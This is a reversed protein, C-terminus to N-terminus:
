PLPPTRNWSALAAAILSLGGGIAFGLSALGALVNPAVAPANAAGVTKWPDQTLALLLAVALLVVAAGLFFVPRVNNMTLVGGGFTLPEVNLTRQPTSRGALVHVWLGLVNAPLAHQM